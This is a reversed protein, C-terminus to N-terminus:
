QIAATHWPKPLRERSGNSSHRQQTMTCLGVKSLTLGHPVLHVQVGSERLLCLQQDCCQCLPLLRAHEATTTHMRQQSSDNCQSLRCADCQYGKTDTARKQLISCGSCGSNLHLICCGSCGSHLPLGERKLTHTWAAGAQWGPLPGWAPAQCWHHWWRNHIPCCAGPAATKATGWIWRGFGYVGESVDRNCEVQQLADVRGGYTLLDGDYLHHKSAQSQHLSCARGGKPFSPCAAVDLM